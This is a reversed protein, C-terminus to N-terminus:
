AGSPWAWFRELRIHPQNKGSRHGVQKILDNVLPAIDRSRAALREQRPSGNISRELMFIADIKRVAEFAIPSIVPKTKGRATSAIDALEFFKRRAHAWCAAEIIPGPKRERSTSARACRIPPKEQRSTM